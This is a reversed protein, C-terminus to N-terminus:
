RDNVKINIVGEGLTVLTHIHSVCAKSGYNFISIYEFDFDFDFDLKKKLWIKHKDQDYVSVGNSPDM